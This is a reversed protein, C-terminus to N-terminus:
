AKTNVGQPRYKSLKVKWLNEITKRYQEDSHFKQLGMVSFDQITYEDTYFHIAVPDGYKTKIRALNLLQRQYLIDGTEGVYVYKACKRCYVAYVVNTSQCNIYNKVNHKKGGHDEFKDSTMIYPCVACYKGCPECRNPKSFLINNHKKHVM